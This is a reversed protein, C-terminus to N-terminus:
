ISSECLRTSFPAIIETPIPEYIFVKIVKETVFILLCSNMILPYLVNLDSGFGYRLMLYARCNLNLRMQRFLIAGAFNPYPLNM